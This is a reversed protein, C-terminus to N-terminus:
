LLIAGPIFIIEFSFKVRSPEATVMSLTLNMAALFNFNIYSTKEFSGVRLMWMAYKRKFFQREIGFNVYKKRVDAVHNKLFM